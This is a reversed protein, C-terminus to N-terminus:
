LSSVWSVVLLQLSPWESFAGREQKANLPLSLASIIVAIFNVTSAMPILPAHHVVLSCAQRPQTALSSAHPMVWDDATGVTVEPMVVSMVVSM